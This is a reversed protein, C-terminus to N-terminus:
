STSELTGMLNATHTLLFICKSIVRKMLEGVAGGTQQKKWVILNIGCQPPAGVAVVEDQYFIHLAFMRKVAAIVFATGCLRGIKRERKVM